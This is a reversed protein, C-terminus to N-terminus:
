YLCNTELLDHRRGAISPCCLQGRNERLQGTIQPLSQALFPNEGGGLPSRQIGPQTRKLYAEERLQKIHPRYNRSVVANWAPVGKYGADACLNRQEARSPSEMVVQDLTAALLKVDHVKAGSAVLSLPVGLGDVLLSRKRGNKESGYPEARRMGHGAASQAHGRRYGALGLCYGGDRRVRGPWGAVPSPFLRAEAM